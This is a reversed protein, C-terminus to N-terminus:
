GKKGWKDLWKKKVEPNVAYLPWEGKMAMIVQTMPKIFLEPEASISYGASHGTLIVNTMKLLPNDASIPEDATVDLGAGAIVSEKLARILADQDVCGGRATNIFHCNPKMMNFENDSFMNTTEETLPTHLSIYDSEKLLTEFDVPKVWRSEMVGEPVYPDYAIVRMGLGKAKLATATGIRGFGVIGLTQDRMRYIPHVIEMLTSRDLIFSVQKQRVVKDLQFLKHGLALVFSLARGSVEDLCYDPTNTVVIQYENAVDLDAMHFGIGCNAIIRCKSLAEIVRLNFPQFTAACIIADANATNEIIEDETRCMITKMTADFQELLSEGFDAGPFPFTNVVKYSM